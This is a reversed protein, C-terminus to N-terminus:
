NRESLRAETLGDDLIKLESDTVLVAIEVLCDKEVDLGTMECDIWVLNESSKM